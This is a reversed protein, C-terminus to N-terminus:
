LALRYVIFRVGLHPFDRERVFGLGEYLARAVTMMEATHLGVTRAGDARARRLCDDSLARGIGCGRVDPAVALARIVAWDQPVHDYGPHDPALYTVTGVMRGALEAVTLQADTVTDVLRALNSSMRRYHEPALLPAFERYSKRVLDQVGPRDAPVAARIGVELREPEVTM